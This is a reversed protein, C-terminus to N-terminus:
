EEPISRLHQHRRPVRSPTQSPKQPLPTSYLIYPEDEPISTLHYARTELISHRNRRHGKVSPSPAVRPGPTVTYTSQSKLWTQVKHEGTSQNALFQRRARRQAPSEVFPQQRSSSAYSHSLMNYSSARVLSCSM